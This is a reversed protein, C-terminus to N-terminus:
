ERKEIVPFPLDPRQGPPWPLDDIETTAHQNAHLERARPTDAAGLDRM